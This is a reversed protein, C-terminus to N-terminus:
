VSQKFRVLMHQCVQRDLKETEGRKAMQDRQAKKEQLERFEQQDELDLQVLHVLQDLDVVGVKPELQVRLALSEVIGLLDLLDGKVQVDLQDLKELKEMTVKLVLKVRLDQRDLVVTM